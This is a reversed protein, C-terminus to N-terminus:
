IACGIWERTTLSYFRVKGLVSRDVTDVLHTQGDAVIWAGPTLWPFVTQSPTIRENDM